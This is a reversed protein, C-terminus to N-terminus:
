MVCYYLILMKRDWFSSCPFPLFSQVLALGFHVLLLGVTRGRADVSHPPLHAGLPKAMQVKHSQQRHGVHSSGLIVRGVSQLKEQCANCLGPM